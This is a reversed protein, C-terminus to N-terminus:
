KTEKESEDILLFFMDDNKLFFDFVKAKTNGIVKNAFTWQTNVMTISKGM